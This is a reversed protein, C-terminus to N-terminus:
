ASTPSARFATASLLGRNATTSKSVVPNEGRTPSRITSIPITLIPPSPDVTSSYAVSILGIRSTPGVWRCPIVCFSTACAGVNASASPSTSDRSAPTIKTPWLARNSRSNRAASSVEAPIKRGAIGDNHM